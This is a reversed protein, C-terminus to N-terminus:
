LRERTPPNQDRVAGVLHFRRGPHQQKGGQEHRHRQKAEIEDAVAHAVRKVGLVPSGIAASSSIVPRLTRKERASPSTCATWSALREIWSPSHRPTTPSLPEPFLWSKRAAKPRSEALPRASPLTFYRPSSISPADELRRFAMRPPATVM